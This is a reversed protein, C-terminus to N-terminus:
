SLELLGHCFQLAQRHFKEFRGTVSSMFDTIYIAKELGGCMPDWHMRCPAGMGSEAVYRM